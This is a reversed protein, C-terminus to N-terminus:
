GGLRDCKEINRLHVEHMDKLDAHLAADKIRPLVEEIKRAVWGQGRNLLDIQDKPVEVAMLKEYFAGVETSPTGGLREIHRTLMACFSAEDRGVRRLIDRVESGPVKKSIRGLARAGAREGELMLNLFSLVEDRGLYGLYEDEVEHMLCPPSAYTERGGLEEATAEPEAIKGSGKDKTM